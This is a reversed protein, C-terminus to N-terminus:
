PRNPGWIKNSSEPQLGGLGLDVLNNMFQTVEQNPIDEMRIQRQGLNRSRKTIVAEFRSLM